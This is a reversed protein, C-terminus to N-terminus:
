AAKVLIRGPRRPCLRSVPLLGSRQAAHVHHLGLLVLRGPLGQGGRFPHGRQVGRALQGGPLAQVVMEPPRRALRGCQADLFVVSPHMFHAAESFASLDVPLHALMDLLPNPRSLVEELDTLHHLCARARQYAEVRFIGESPTPGEGGPEGEVLDGRVVRHVGAVRLPEEPGSVDGLQVEPDLDLTVDEIAGECEGEIRHMVLEHCRHLFGGVLADPVGARVCEDALNTPADALDHLSALHVPGIALHQWHSRDPVERAM